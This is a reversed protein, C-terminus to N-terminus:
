SNEAQIQPSLSQPKEIWCLVHTRLFPLANFLSYLGPHIRTVRRSIPPALTVRWFRLKGHPFLARIRAVPIGRVDPNWPNNYIFDYWLIGGGPATLNWLKDALTQQFTEDLLSTFVMSQYVIDFAENPLELTSADGVLLPIVEPLRIRAKQARAELLENSTLLLPEFGLQIFELLDSGMGCGIELVRKTEVPAIGCVRIWRRTARRKEDHAAAVDPKLPHYREDHELEPRRAYRAKIAETEDM